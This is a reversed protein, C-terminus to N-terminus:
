NTNKLKLRLYIDEQRKLSGNIVKNINAAYLGLQKAAELQSSFKIWEEETNNKKAYVFTQETKESKNENYTKNYLSVVDKNTERWIRCQERCDFCTKVQKNNSIFQQTDKEKKCKNCNMM